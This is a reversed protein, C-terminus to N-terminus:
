LTISFSPITVMLAHVLPTGKSSCACSCNFFIALIGNTCECIATIGSTCIPLPAVMPLTMGETSATIGAATPTSIPQPITAVLVVRVALWNGSLRNPILLANSAATGWPLVLPLRPCLPLSLPAHCFMGSTTAPSHFFNSALNSFIQWFCGAM